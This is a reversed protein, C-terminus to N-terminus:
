ISFFSHLTSFLSFAPNFVWLWSMMPTIGGCCDLRAVSIGASLSVGHGLSSTCVNQAQQSVVSDLSLWVSFILFGILTRWQQWMCIVDCSKQGAKSYHGWGWQPLVLSYHFIFSVLYLGTSYLRTTTSFPCKHKEIRLGTLKLTRHLM